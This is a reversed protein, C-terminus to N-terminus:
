RQLAYSLKAFFQRDKKQLVGAADFERSDGFGVFMVTQWNLKYALLASGGFGGDKADADDVYLTTDRVTRAWQGILRLFMRSSFTYTARIREIDATFLRGRSTPSPAVDLWRKAGLLQVELHDTPRVAGSLNVNAGHGPRSNDFDAEQGVWGQLEINSVFRTPSISVDYVMQHRPVLVGGAQVDDKFFRFRGRSGWRGDFGFGAYFQRLLVASARDEQYDYGVFTRLRTFLGRPRSTYGYEGDSERFGVQPVFGNDARFGPTFDRYETFGDVHRTSHLWWGSLGRGELSRADWSEALDTRNPTLTDTFLLQGTVTEKDNPRWQM